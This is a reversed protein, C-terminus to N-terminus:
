LSLAGEVIKWIRCRNRFGLPVGAWKGKAMMISDNRILLKALAMWDGQTYHVPQGIEKTSVGQDIELDWVHPILMASLIGQLWFHQDLCLQSALTKSTLQLALVSSLPLCSRIRHLIEVPLKELCSKESSISNNESIQLETFNSSAPFIQRQPLLSLIFGRLEPITVPDILYWQSFIHSYRIRLM